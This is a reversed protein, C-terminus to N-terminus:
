GFRTGRRTRSRDAETRVPSSSDLVTCRTVEAIQNALPDLRWGGKMQASAALLEDQLRLGDGSAADGLSCRLAARVSYWDVLLSERDAARRRKSVPSAAASTARDRDSIMPYFRVLRQSWRGGERITGTRNPVRLGLHVKSAESHLTM